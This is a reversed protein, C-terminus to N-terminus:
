LSCQSVTFSPFSTWNKHFYDSVTSLMSALGPNLDQRRGKVLHVVRPLDRVETDRHTCDFSLLVSTLPNRHPNFSIICIFDRACHRDGVSFLLSMNVIYKLFCVRTHLVRAFLFFSLCCPLSVWIAWTLSSDTCQTPLFQLNGSWILSPLLPSLLHCSSQWGPLTSSRLAM